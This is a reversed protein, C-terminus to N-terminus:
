QNGGAWTPLMIKFYEWGVLFVHYAEQIEGEMQYTYYRIRVFRRTTFFFINVVQPKSM